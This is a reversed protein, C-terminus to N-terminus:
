ECEWAREVTREVDSVQGDGLHSDKPWERLSFQHEWKQRNELPPLIQALVLLM